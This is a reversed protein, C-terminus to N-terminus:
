STPKNNVRYFLYGVAVSFTFTAVLAVLVFRLMGYGDEVPGHLNFPNMGLAGTLVAALGFVVGGTGVRLQFTRDQRLAAEDGQRQAELKASATVSEVIRLLDLVQSRHEELVAASRLETRMREFLRAGESRGGADVVVLSLTTRVLAVSLRQAAKAAEDAREIIGTEARGHSGEEQSALAAVIEAVRHATHQVTEALRDLALRELVAIITLYVHQRAFKQPYDSSEFDVDEGDMPWSCLLAGERSTALARNAREYEMTALATAADVRAAENQCRVMSVLQGDPPLGESRWVSHHYFQPVAILQAGTVAPASDGALLEVLREIFVALSVDSYRTADREDPDELADGTLREYLATKFGTPGLRVAVSRLASTNQTTVRLLERAILGDDACEWRLWLLGVGLSHLVVRVQLLRVPGRAYGNVDASPGAWGLPGSKCGLTPAFEDDNFGPTLSLWAIDGLEGDVSRGSHQLLMRLSPDVNEAMGTSPAVGWPGAAAASVVAAFEGTFSLPILTQTIM